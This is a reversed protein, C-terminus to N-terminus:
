KKRSEAREVELWIEDDKGEGSKIVRGAVRWTEGPRLTALDPGGAHPCLRFRQETGSARLRLGTATAGPAATEGDVVGTVALSAGGYRVAGRWRVVEARLKPLDLRVEPRWVVEM